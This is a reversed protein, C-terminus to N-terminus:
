KDALIAIVWNIIIELSPIYLKEDPTHAGLITPGISLMEMGSYKEGITGCELGAHIAKVIPEKKYLKMYKEKVKKLLKSSTDPKWAFSSNGKSFKTSALNSISELRNTMEIIRSNVSSRNMCHILFQGNELKMIAFNNSTEVLGKVEESMGLVGHPIALILSIIEKTDSSNIYNFNKVNKEIVKLKLSPEVGKYEGNFVIEEFEKKAKKLYKSNKLLIQCMSSNPIGNHISGGSIAILQMRSNESLSKLFRGLLINTNAIKKDIEVGSHGGKGGSIEIEFVSGSGKKTSYSKEIMTDQGGASGITIEGEEESDLNILMKESLLDKSLNTAGSLGREEDVTMLLELKPHPIKEEKAITLMLAMAIGNDAGLTTDKAHIWDGEIIPVISDKAFDHNSGTTKQGVMDMHGQLVFGATKEYGKSAPVHIVVNGTEDKKSEFSNKNAWEILWEGIAKEDGSCRPIKSIEKFIEITKEVLFNKM